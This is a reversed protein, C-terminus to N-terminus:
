LLAAVGAVLLALGSMGASAAGAIPVIAPASTDPKSPVTDPKTPVTGPLTTPKQGEPCVTTSKTVTPKPCGHCPVNTGPLTGNSLPGTPHSPQPPKNGTPKPNTTTTEAPLKTTTEAPLKTTTETTPPKVVTTTKDKGYSFSVFIDTLPRITADNSCKSTM